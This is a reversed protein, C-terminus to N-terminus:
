RLNVWFSELLWRLALLLVLSCTAVRVLPGWVPLVMAKPAFVSTYLGYYSSVVSRQCVVFRHYLTTYFYPCLYFWGLFSCFASTASKQLNPLVGFGSFLRFVAYLPFPQIFTSFPQIFNPNYITLASSSPVLRM